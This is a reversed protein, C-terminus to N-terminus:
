FDTLVALWGALLWGALWGALGALRGKPVCEAAGAAWLQASLRPPRAAEASAGPALVLPVHLAHHQLRHSSYRRRPSVGAGRTQCLLLLPSASNNTGRSTECCERPLRWQRKRCLLALYYFKTTTSCGNNGTWPSALCVYQCRAQKSQNIAFIYDLSFM